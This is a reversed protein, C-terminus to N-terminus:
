NEAPCAPCGGVGPKVSCSNVAELYLDGVSQKGDKNIDMVRDNAAVGTPATAVLYLDGVTLNRSGNVDVIEFWDACGDGDTDKLAPNTNYGEIEVVDSIEVPPAPSAVGVGNDNDDDYTGSPVDAAKYCDVGDGDPDWEVRNANTSNKADWDGGYLGTDPLNWRCAHYFKLQNGNLSAACKVKGNLPNSGTYAETGDVCGDSDDDVANNCQTSTEAVPGFQPCGDNVKGDADATDDNLNNACAGPISAESTAGVQPCGDNIWGDADTDAIKPDTGAATELANPLGDNDIDPDCADGLIDQNPNSAKIGNGADRSQGDTNTQDPNYVTPCNDDSNAVNTWGNNTPDGVVPCGDNIAGDSDNDLADSCNAGSESALGVKPCGDNIKGDADNDLADTCEGGREAAALDAVGVPSAQYNNEPKDWLGDGDTDPNGPNTFQAMEIFDPAGDFDSDQAVTNSGWAQEVGDVLGDCDQDANQSTPATTQTPKGSYARWPPTSTASCTTAVTPLDVAHGPQASAPLPLCDHDPDIGDYGGVGNHVLEYDLHSETGSIAGNGDTDCSVFPDAPAAQNCGDVDEWYCASQIMREEYTGQPGQANAEVSSKDSTITDYALRSDPQSQYFTWRAYLGVADDITDPVLSGPGTANFCNVMIVKRQSNDAPKAEVLPWVPLDTANIVVSYRGPLTGSAPCDITLKARVDSQGPPETVSFATCNETPDPCPNQSVSSGNATITSGWLLSLTDDEGGSVDAVEAELTEDGVVSVAANNVKIERLDVTAAEGMKLNLQEGTASQPLTPAPTGPPNAVVAIPKIWVVAKDVAVPTPSPIAGCVVKIVFVAANDAPYYDQTNTGASATVVPWLDNKIVVMGQGASSGCAISLTNPVVTDQAKALNNVPVDISTAGTEPPAPTPTWAATISAPSDNLVQIDWHDMFSGVDPGKNVIHKTVAVTTASSVPVDVESKAWMGFIGADACAGNASNCPGGSDALKPPNTYDKTHNTSNQPTDICVTDAAPAIVHPNGGNRTTSTTAMGGASWPVNTFVTNLHVETTLNSTGNLKFNTAIAEHRVLWPYPPVLPILWSDGGPLQVNTTKALWDYPLYPGGPPSTAPTFWDTATLPGGAPDADCLADIEALVDGLNTGEPTDKNLIISFDPAGYIWPLTVRQGFPISTQTVDTTAVGLQM